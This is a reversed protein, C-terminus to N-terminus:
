ESNVVRTTFITSNMKRQISKPEATPTIRFLKLLTDSAQRIARGAAMAPM